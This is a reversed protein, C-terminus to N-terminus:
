TLSYKILMKMLFCKLANIKDMVVTHCEDREDKSGEHMEVLKEWFESANKHSRVRNFVDNSIGYFLINCHKVNWNDYNTKNLTSKTKHIIPPLDSV